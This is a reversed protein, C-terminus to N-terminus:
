AASRCRTTRRSSCPSRRAWPARAPLAVGGPRAARSRARGPVRLRRSLGPAHLRAARHHRPRARDRRQLFPVLTAIRSSRSRSRGLALTRASHRRARLRDRLARHGPLGARSGVRRSVRARADGAGHLLVHRRRPDRGERRSGRPRRAGTSCRATSRSCGSRAPAGRFASWCASGTSRRRGRPPPRCREALRRARRGARRCGRSAGARRRSRGVVYEAVGGVDTAVVPLGCAMAELVVNPSNDFDSSLAFVDAARYYPAM